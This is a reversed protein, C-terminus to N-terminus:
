PGHGPISGLAPLVPSIFPVPSVAFYCSCNCGDQQYLVVIDIELLALKLSRYPILLIRRRTDCDKSPIPMIPEFLEFGQPIEMFFSDFGPIAAAIRAQETGSAACDGRSSTNTVAWFRSCFRLSTLRETVAKEPVASRSSFRVLLTSIAACVGPIFIPVGTPSPLLGAIVRRPTPSFSKLSLLSPGIAM